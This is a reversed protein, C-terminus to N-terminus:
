EDSRLATSPDVHMATMAPVATALLGAAGTVITVAAFTVVDIPKIAFLLSSLVGGVTAAAALGIVIGTAMLGAGQRVIARAVESPRAGLALRVGIERARSAVSYAMVSYVGVFALLASAAAFLTLLAMSSRRWALTREALSSLSRIASVPVGRDLRAATDRIPREMSEATMSTRVVLAFFPWYAQAVPRYVEPEPEKSLEHHRTDAVVGIVTRPAPESFDSVMLTQGVPDANPWMRRATTENVIVVDQSGLRDAETFVRGRRVPIRMTRFYDPTVVRFEAFRDQAPRQGQLFHPRMANFGTLPLTNIIAASEVGPLQAVEQALQNLFASARDTSAYRDRPMGIQATVVGDPDFGFSRDQLRMFSRVLLGAGVLLVVALAIQATVIVQRILRTRRDPTSGRSGSRLSDSMADLGRLGRLMPTVGFALGSTVTAFVTMALVRADFWGTDAGGFSIGRATALLDPLVRVGWASLLLGFVGGATAVLMGESVHQKFLDGRSAGLALRVATDRQRSSARVLVLSAVNASAILLLIAATGQVIWLLSAVSGVYFERLGRIDVTFGEHTDPFDSAHRAALARLETEARDTTIGPVLRAAIRFGRQKRDDLMARSLSVPVWVDTEPNPHAFRPPMVGAITYSRGDLEITEGVVTPRADFRHRWFRDSLVVVNDRGAEGDADVLTRGLAAPTGLMTFLGPTFQQGVIAEPRDTGTVNFPRDWWAQVSEFLETRSRWADYDFGATKSYRSQEAHFTALWVLRDADRYPLPALLVRNVLSFVTINAGIGLAITAIATASFWPSRAFSRLTRRM